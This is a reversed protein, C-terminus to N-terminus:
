YDWENDLIVADLKYTRERRSFWLPLRYIDIDSFEQVPLNRYYLYANYATKKNTFIAPLVVEANSNVYGWLTDGALEAVKIEQESWRKIVNESNTSNALNYMKFLSGHEASAKYGGVFGDYPESYRDSEIDYIRVGGKEPNIVALAKGYISPKKDCVCPIMQTFDATRYAGWKSDQRVLITHNTVIIRDYEFPVVTENTTTICGLISNALFAGHKKTRILDKYLNSCALFIGHETRELDKYIYPVVLNQSTDIVGCLGQENQVIMYGDKYGLGRVAPYEAVTEGKKNILMTKSIGDQSSTVCAFGDSFPAGLYGDGSLMLQLNNVIKETEFITSVKEFNKEYKYTAVIEKRRTDYYIFTIQMNNSAGKDNACVRRLLVIDGASFDEDEYFDSMRPVRYGKGFVEKCIADGGMKSAYLINGQTDIWIREFGSTYDIFGQHTDLTDHYINAQIPMSKAFSSGKITQKKMLFLVKEAIVKGQRDIIDSTTGKTYGLALGDSNFEGIRVYKKPEIVVAGEDSVLGVKKKKKIQAVGHSFTGIEDYACPVIEKGEKNIFGYADGNKVMAIGKDSFAGIFDYKYDVVLTGNEDEWGCKGKNNAVVGAMALSCTCLWLFAVASRKTLHKM